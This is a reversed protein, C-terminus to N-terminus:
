EAVEGTEPASERVALPAGELPVDHYRTPMAYDKRLPFGEWDEPLLIRRLDPHGEFEIGYMDYTEREGWLATAWIHGISPLSPRERPVRAAIAIEVDNARSHLHHVVSLDGTGETTESVSGDEEYRAIEIHKGKGTEDYGEFDIGSVNLLRDFDCEDRLFACLDAMAEPAVDIRHPWATDGDEDTMSSGLIQAGFVARSRGEIETPTMAEDRNTM